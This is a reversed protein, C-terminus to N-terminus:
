LHETVVRRLEFHELDWPVTEVWTDLTRLSLMWGPSSFPLTLTGIVLRSLSTNHLLTAIGLVKSDSAESM